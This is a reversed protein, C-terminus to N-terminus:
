KNGLFERYLSTSGSIITKLVTLEPKIGKSKLGIFKLQIKFYEDLAIFYKVTKKIDMLLKDIDKEVGEQHNSIYSLIRGEEALELLRFELNRVEDFFQEFHIPIIKKKGNITFSAGYITKPKINFLYKSINFMIRGLFGRKNSSLNNHNIALKDIAAALHARTRGIELLAAILPKNPDEKAEEKKVHRKKNGKTLQNIVRERHEPGEPSYDEELIELIYKKHVKIYSYNQTIEKIISDNFLQMNEKTEDSYIIPVIDNRILQKYSEKLYLFIYKLGIIIRKHSESISDICKDITSIILSDNISNRLSIVLKGFSNTNFDATTPNLLGDWRYFDVFKKLKDLDTFNFNNLSLNYNHTIYSLVSIYKCIRQPVKWSSETDPFPEADPLSIEMVDSNSLYPDDKILGKNKLKGYIETIGMYFKLFDDSLKPIIESEIKDHYDELLQKIQENYEANM